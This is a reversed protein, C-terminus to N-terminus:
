ADGRLARLAGVHLRERVHEHALVRHRPLHRAVRRELEALLADVLPDFAGPAPVHSYFDCYGCKTACFPVHIYLGAETM